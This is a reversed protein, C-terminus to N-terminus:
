IQFNHNMFTITSECMKRTSMNIITHKQMLKFRKWEGLAKSKQFGSRTLPTEFHDVLLYILDGFRNEDEWYEKDM